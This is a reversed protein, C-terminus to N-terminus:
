DQIKKKTTLFSETSSSFDLRVPDISLRYGQTQFFRSTSTKIVGFFFELSIASISTLIQRIVRHYWQQIDNSLSVSLCSSSRSALSININGSISALKVKQWKKDREIWNKKQKLGRWTVTCRRDIM